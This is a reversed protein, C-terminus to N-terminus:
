WNDLMEAAMTRFEENSHTRRVEELFERARETHVYNAGFLVDPLDEHWIRADHLLSSCLADEHVFALIATLEGETSDFEGAALTSSLHRTIEPVCEQIDARPLRLLQIGIHDYPFPPDFVEPDATEMITQLALKHPMHALMEVASEREETTRDTDWAIDSLCRIGQEGMLAIEATLALFEDLGGFMGSARAREIDAIGRGWAVRVQQTTVERDAANQLAQSIAYVLCNSAAKRMEDKLEALEERLQANERELEAVTPVPEGKLREEGRPPPVTSGPQEGTEQEVPLGRASCLNWGIISAIAISVLWLAVVGILWQKKM